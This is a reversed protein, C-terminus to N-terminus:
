RGHNVFIPSSWAREENMALCDGEKGLGERCINSKICTGNEDYECQLPDASYALSPEEIARVYYIADRKGLGYEEDTFSIECEPNNCNFTKWTDLILNEVPEDPYQQPLIKVVEIRTIIKREDSPNYCESNCIAELREQSLANTSYEPCGPKQKFSGAARVTFVPSENAKIESGMHYSDQNHEADFWLLIRSGSTAYVEKTEMSNWIDERSRSDAHVAVLGGTMFYASQREADVVFNLDIISSINQNLGAFFPELEGKPRRSSSLREMLPDSFGSAETEHARNTDKFGTGPRAGHNDSSGIFGFNFRQPNAPDSFDTMAMIYQVAGLPRYNFAPLFCDNCQGANLYDDAETERVALFAGAGMNVANEKVQAVLGNCTEADLGSDKCREAMIEGAKHCTPIFDATPEPCFLEGNTAIGVDNWSRYEESNGHGSFIEILFQSSPDHATELQKRWDSSPPTYFGWTTGHPIVMYNADWEKLRAFLENPDAAQEACDLPLDRSATDRDCLPTEKIEEFFKDFAFFRDRNELDLLAPLTSLTWPLGLRMVLPAAGTSGVVRPPVVDEDTELFIVNKHGYHQDPEQSVQTWEYGLFSVLDDSGESLANCQRISEKTDLWKRPTSAEAHDNISWFDLASCFRAYDCADALPSAGTGNLYPLSWMFADTSYTTHVHLDGFLIQKSSAINLNEKVDEIKSTRNQIVADPVKSGEIVGPGELSGLQKTVGFYLFFATFFLGILLFSFIIKKM